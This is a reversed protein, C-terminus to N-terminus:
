STLSILEQMLKLEGDAHLAQIQKFSALLREAEEVGHGDMRMREIVVRLRGICREGRVAHEAARAAHQELVERKM